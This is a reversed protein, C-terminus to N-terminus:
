AKAVTGGSTFKMGRDRTAPCTQRFLNRTPNPEPAHTAQAVWKKSPAAFIIKTRKQVKAERGPILLYM